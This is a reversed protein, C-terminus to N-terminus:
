RKPPNPLFGRGLAEGLTLGNFNKRMVVGLILAPEGEHHIVFTAPDIYGRTVEAVDGVRVIKGGANVPLNKVAEVDDFAGEPRVYVRPGTTEVFGAPTVDNQLKLAQMLDTAHVGLTALRQYSIEVYIRQAQEGLINVKEVGKVRLLRQRITEAELVLQRHPLGNAKLAYLAFYVDSFEDNMLPGIVGKPLNGAEDALKKRAQYFEEPLREPPIYDQFFVKMLIVGPYAATEARDYYELEQLRKELRDGVQEVMEKATAGPWHAAVTMVKVTFQPDEARGLHLFAFAGAILVALILFLTLTRERVAWASLNFSTV